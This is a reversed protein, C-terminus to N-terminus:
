QWSSRHNWCRGWCFIFAWFSHQNVGRRSWGTHTIKWHAAPDDLPFHLASTCSDGACHTECDCKRSAGPHRDSTRSCKIEMESCMGFTSWMGTSQKLGVLKSFVVTCYFIFVWGQKHPPPGSHSSGFPQLRSVLIFLTVKFPYCLVQSEWRTLNYMQWCM